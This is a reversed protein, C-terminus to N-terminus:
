TNDIAAIYSGPEVAFYETAGAAMRKTSTTAAVSSSGFAISVITAAHVRVFKTKANFQTGLTTTAGTTIVQEALCPEHGVPLWRGSDIPKLDAYEAVYVKGAM